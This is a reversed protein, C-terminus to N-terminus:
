SCPHAHGSDSRVASGGGIPRCPRRRRGIVYTSVYKAAKNLDNSNKVSNQDIKKGLKKPLHKAPKKVPNRASNKTSNKAPYKASAWQCVSLM